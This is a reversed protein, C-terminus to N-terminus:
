GTWNFIMISFDTLSVKGDRNIDAPPNSNGGNTNWWYLLISFDTLNVKGDRNLDSTRPMEAQQGVGYYTFDSYNTSLGTEQRAKARVKYTGTQFGATSVSMTWAGNSDSTTTFTKLSASTKDNQNEITITANPIAYGSFTVTADPDVPDPTVKISPMVNINSLTSGRSGTVSFTTSYTSSKTGNKDIAYVGFTYVGRAIQDLTVSFEGTNNSTIQQAIRGDVLVVVTSRPFAFGNIIVRGDGSQYPLNTGELGGGDIGTIGSTGGGSGAGGGGSSGGGLTESGGTNGGSTGSGSGSTGSGSGGGGSGQGEGEGGGGPTGPPYEPITFSIVYDDTNINGEDDICRAYFIYSTSTAVEIDNSHVVFYTLGFQNTMSYFPTNSATSYRCLAFENTELSLQVTLTTGSLTGTPAGNFRFPPDFERTNIPGVGVQDVIVVGGIAREKTTGNGKEIFYAYTGTATPNKIGVDTATASTTNNGIKLRVTSGAPIGDTSNLTVEIYGSTGTEIIIGDETASPTSSALRLQFTSTSSTAVLLDVNLISFNTDPITFFGPKLGFLIYGGPPIETTTRFEVTHNAYADPASTSITDKYYQTTGAYVNSTFFIFSLAFLFVWVFNKTFAYLYNGRDRM